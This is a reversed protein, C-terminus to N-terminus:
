EKSTVSTVYPNSASMRQLRYFIPSPGSASRALMAEFPQKEAFSVKGQCSGEIVVEYAAERGRM